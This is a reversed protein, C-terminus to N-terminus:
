DPLQVVAALVDTDGVVQACHRHGDHRRGAGREATAAASEGDENRGRARGGSLLDAATPNIGTASGAPQFASSPLGPPRGIPFTCPRPPRTTCLCSSSM